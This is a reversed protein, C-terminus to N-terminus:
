PVYEVIAISRKWRWPLQRKVVVVEVIRRLYVDARQVGKAVLENADKSENIDAGDNLEEVIRGADVSEIALDRADGEDRVASAIGAGGDHDVVERVM